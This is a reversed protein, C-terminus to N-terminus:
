TRLELLPVDHRPIRFTQAYLSLESELARIMTEARRFGHGEGEFAIYAHPIGRGAMQALFRECQVPPCIVDDLGQLLLFPTTIRDVNQLPSRERYRGPVDALPGILSELYQSEFDHTEDTAWGLLDLIPYIITGCAYVDTTTLSAATTWGGASGGRIALRAPDATGEAALTEAVAACDEVDVVGWQERLRNRYERGYGTSGGYNVEAVGIGRSTFYAIELDLVLPAHGTPGGHAWVVFPPLEDDPAIRDPSHPPYIHAHIERNDPGAFTRIQPEPYYAPDVPDDHASGIVRTRGTRTDLEVVEYASRPSAAVGIVRDGHVALTPAWETWPGSADVLEGTEPDLIGLATAGRGHIVAVLGNELPHFWTLGLKWLPGGFEEGRGPCLGTSPVVGPGLAEPRIRQLEWWNGVDSVFLLSGDPAWDVQAVSEDTDGVVPRVGSFPGGETVEGLMVVTGDWPMQPHDWAIWAAHRGDPSLRPGTVFRHRDDSLERVAGRDEAASGDLPVVAIVRRVDAPAEGTFEELVCWVEGRDLHLQPDAWRLGGGLASVPTLPRPEAGPADPEYAYLRQDNFHVFVVLPGGDARGAGAWPRGGYEIVRSRLNWPAALVSAEGGDARRRMLARRGGETPRAATWWVEDGVMGLYEARGDHSAALVADIPSPWTGYAGTPVM